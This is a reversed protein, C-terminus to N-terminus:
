GSRAVGRNSRKGKKNGNQTVVPTGSFRQFKIRQSQPLQSLFIEWSPQTDDDNIEDFLTVEDLVAECTCIYNECVNCIKRAM